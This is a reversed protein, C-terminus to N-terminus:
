TSCDFNFFWRTVLINVFSILLRSYLQLVNTTNLLNDIEPIIRVWAILSKPYCFPKILDAM